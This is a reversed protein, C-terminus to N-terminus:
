KVSVTGGRRVMDLLLRVEDLDQPTPPPLAAAASKTMPTSVPEHEHGACEPDGSTDVSSVTGDADTLARAVNPTVYSPTRGMQPNDGASRSRHSMIMPTSNHHNGGPTCQPLAPYGHQQGGQQIAPLSQTSKHFDGESHEASDDQFGLEDGQQAFRDLESALRANGPMMAGVCRVLLRVGRATYSQRREADTLSAECREVTDAIANLDFKVEGLDNRVSLVEAHTESQQESLEDQKTSLGLIQEGLSEKVQLIGKGLSTVAADFFKRTVPLMEKIQEPLVTSLVIYSGWCLGAGLTLQVLLVLPRETLLKGGGSSSGSSTHIIIPAPAAAAAGAAGAAHNNSGGTGSAQLIASLPVGAALQAAVSATQVAADRLAEGGALAYAGLGVFAWQGIASSLPGKALVHSASM